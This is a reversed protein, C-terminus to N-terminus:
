GQALRSEAARVRATLVRMIEFSIEPMQRVLDKLSASDLCLMRSPVAAVVTASRPQEDIAAMEGFYSVAEMTSLTRESRSGYGKIVRVRGEILLYLEGGRDGERVITENALYEVAPGSQAAATPCPAAVSLLILLLRRRSSM